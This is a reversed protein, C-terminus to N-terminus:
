EYREGNGMKYGVIIHELAGIKIFPEMKTVLKFLNFKLYNPILPFNKVFFISYSLRSFINFYKTKYKIYLGNQRFLNELEEFSYGTKIHEWQKNVTYIDVFPLRFDSFPTSLIVKGGPKLVRSIEKILRDEEQIHEIVDLCLVVDVSNSELPLKLASAYLTKLGRKKATDLGSKDIDVVIIDLNLFVKKLRYSIEGDYGGIDLITLNNKLEKKLINKLAYWRLITGPRM